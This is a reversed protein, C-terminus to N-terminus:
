NSLAVKLQNRYYDCVSRMQSVIIKAFLDIMREDLRLQLREM